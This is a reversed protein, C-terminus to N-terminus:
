GTGFCFWYYRTGNLLKTGGRYVWYFSAEVSSFMPGSFGLGWCWQISIMGTSLQDSNESNEESESDLVNVVFM